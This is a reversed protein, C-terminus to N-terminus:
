RVPAFYLPVVCPEYSRDRDPEMRLVPARHDGREGRLSPRFEFWDVESYILSRYVLQLCTNGKLEIEDSEKDNFAYSSGFNQDSVDCAYVADVPYDRNETHVTLDARNVKRPWFDASRSQIAWHLYVNQYNLLPAEVDWVPLLPPGMLIRQQGTESWIFHRAEDTDLRAKVLGDKDTFRYKWPPDSYWRADVVSCANCFIVAITILLIRM